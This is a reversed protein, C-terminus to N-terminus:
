CSLCITLTILAPVRLLRRVRQAEESGLSGIKQFPADIFETEFALDPFFEASIDRGQRDIIRQQSCVQFHRPVLVAVDPSAAALQYAGTEAAFVDRVHGEDTQRRYVKRIRTAARDM